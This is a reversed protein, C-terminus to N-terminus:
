ALHEEYFAAIAQGMAKYADATDQHLPHASDMHTFHDTDALAQAVDEGQEAALLGPGLYRTYYQAFSADWTDIVALQELLATFTFHAM